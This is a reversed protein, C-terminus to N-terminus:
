LLETWDRKPRPGFLLEIMFLRDRDYKALEPPNKLWEGPDEIGTGQAGFVEVGDANVAMPYVTTMSSDLEGLYTIVNTVDTDEISVREQYPTRDAHLYEVLPKTLKGDNCCFLKGDVYWEDKGTGETLEFRRLFMDWPEPARLRISRTTYMM